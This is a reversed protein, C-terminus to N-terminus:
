GNPRAPIPATLFVPELCRLFCVKMDKPGDPWAWIFIGTQNLLAGDNQRMMAGAVKARANMGGMQRQIHNERLWFLEGAPRQEGARRYV